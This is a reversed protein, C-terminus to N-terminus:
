AAAKVADKPSWGVMGFTPFKIRGYARNSHQYSGCGLEIIPWEDPHLHRTEGYTKSLVGIANLGGRSSTTFTYLEGTEANAMVINNTFKWPDIPEDNEEDIPWAEKDMDGLDPRRPPKFGEAILGLRQETLKNDVWRSWGVALSEMNAVMRTGLAVEDNEKGATYDGKSFKLLKGTFTTTVVSAGYEVWPNSGTTAVDTSAKKAPPFGPRRWGPAVENIKTDVKDNGNKVSTSKVM